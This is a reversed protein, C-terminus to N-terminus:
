QLPPPTGKPLFTMDKTIVNAMGYLIAIGGAAILAIAIGWALHKLGENTSGDKFATIAQILKWIVFVLGAILLIMTGITQINSYNNSIWQKLGEM